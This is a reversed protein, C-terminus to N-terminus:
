RRPGGVDIGGAANVRQLWMDFALAQKKGEDALSGTLALPAGIKIVDANQKACSLTTAALVFIALFRSLRTTM